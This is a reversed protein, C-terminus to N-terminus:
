RKSFYKVDKKLMLQTRYIYIYIYIYIKVLEEKQTQWM